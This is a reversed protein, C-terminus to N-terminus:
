KDGLRVGQLLVHLAWEEQVLFAGQEEDDQVEPLAEDSRRSHL